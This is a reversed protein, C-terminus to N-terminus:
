YERTVSKSAGIQSVENNIPIIIEGEAPRNGIPFTMPGGIVREMPPLHLLENFTGINVLADARPTNFILSDKSTADTSMDAVVLSTKVGLEECLECTQALDIHPAGGHIKTLIAGDAGLVSKVLKAATAASRKMEPEKAQGVTIVVGVFCLDKGHRNYLERVIPHNQISYTQHGM